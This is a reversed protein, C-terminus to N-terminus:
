PDSNELDRLESMTIQWEKLTDHMMSMTEACHFDCISPIILYHSNTVLCRNLVGNNPSLDLLVFDAKYELATKMISHYPKGTLQNPSIRVSSFGKSTFAEESAILADLKNTNRDGHVLWLNKKVAFAYAARAEVKTDIVQQYLTRVPHAFRHAQNGEIFHTLPNPINPDDVYEKYRLGLMFATTSRQSDCDYVLVRYNESLIYAISIVNTTKGVGGKEAFFSLLKIDNTDKKIKIFPPKSKMKTLTKKVLNKTIINKVFNMLDCNRRKM